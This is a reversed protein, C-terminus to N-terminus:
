ARRKNLKNLEESYIKEAEPNDPFMMRAVRKQEDTLNLKAPTGPRSGGVAEVMPVVPQRGTPKDAPKVGYDFEKEVREKVEKLLAPYTNKWSPIMTNELYIAYAR